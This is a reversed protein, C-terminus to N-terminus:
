RGSVRAFMADQAYGDHRAGTYPDLQRSLARRNLGTWTVNISGDSGTALGTYDGLFVNCDKGAADEVPPDRYDRPGCIAAWRRPPVYQGVWHTVSVDPNETRTRGEAPNPRLVRAGEGQVWLVHHFTAAPAPRSDEDWAVALRGDPTHDAWPFWQSRASRDITRPSSWTRGGDTSRVRYVDTDFGPGARCPDYRPPRLRKEVCGETARRNPRPRDVFVISVDRGDTPDASITGLYNLRFQHGWITQDGLVSFPTDSFGDELSVVPVPDGFTRGGNDSSVVMIQTDFDFPVEWVAENQYNAFHVYVTGDPAVEPISFQSEDCERAPGATQYTCTAHSGSVEKPRSWTRGGDDSYSLYIPSEQYEEGGFFRTGTIYARGYHPSSPYNDVTLWDKDFFVQSPSVDSGRGRMVVVPRRWRRGGDTSRSVAIHGNRFVARAPSSTFLIEGMLAVGHKADFAPSPDGANNGAGFPIQGDIWHRGGDFSTFFGTPVTVFRRGTENNFRYYYDNSGAVLHDPDNPDVAIAIENDPNFDQGLRDTNCSMDTAISPDGASRCRFGEVRRLFDDWDGRLSPIRAGVSAAPTPQAEVRHTSRLWHTLRPNGPKTEGASTGRGASPEAVAGAVLLVMVVVARRASTKGM